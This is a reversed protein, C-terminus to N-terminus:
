KQSSVRVSASKVAVFVFTIPIAVFRYKSMIICQDFSKCEINLRWNAICQAAVCMEDNRIEDWPARWSRVYNM